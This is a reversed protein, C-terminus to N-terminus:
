RLPLRMIPEGDDDYEGTPRFGLRQYFGAPGGDGPVYSTLLEEAGADRVIDAVRLVTARGIGKGQHKEDVLLKWLFWPGHIHPPQPVCDWSLMVFAVLVGDAYVARYWPNAHPFAAAEALSGAVSTVFREQGPGLRLALVGDRDADTIERLILEMAPLRHTRRRDPEVTKPPKVFDIESLM